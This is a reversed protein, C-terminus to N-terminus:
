SACAMGSKVFSSDNCETTSGRGPCTAGPTWAGRLRACIDAGKEVQTDRSNHCFKTNTTATQECAGNTALGGCSCLMLM